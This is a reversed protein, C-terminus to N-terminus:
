RREAAIGIDDRYWDRHMRYWAMPHHYARWDAPYRYFHRHHYRDWYSGTSYAVHVGGPGVYSNVGNHANAAGVGALSAGALAIAAVAGKILTKM